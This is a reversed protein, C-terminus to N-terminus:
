PRPHAKQGSSSSSGSSSSAPASSGSSSPEPPPGSSTPTYRTGSSEGSARPQATGGSTGQGGGSQYGHGKVVQGHNQAQGGGGGDGSVIIVTGGAGGYYGGYGYPSYDYGLGYGFPSYYGYPSWGYPSSSDWGYPPYNGTGYSPEGGAYSTDTAPARRSADVPSFEGQMSPATVSFVGPYSTAVMVDIAGAPVGSDALSVLLQGDLAFRAGEEALWAEVVAADVQHSAEVVDATSPPAAATGLAVGIGLRRGALRATIEAVEPVAATRYRLVRAVTGGRAVIGQVVLWEWSPTMAILESSVRKLGGPCEYESRRYVREGESSWRATEWGTCGAGEITRREGTVEITDSAVIGTDVVTLVAVGNSGAPIVCVVPAGAKAGTAKGNVPTWCGLWAQWRSDTRGQQATAPATLALVLAGALLFSARTKM